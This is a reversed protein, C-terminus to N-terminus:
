KWENPFQQQAVKKANPNPAGGSSNEPKANKLEDQEVKTLRLPVPKGSTARPNLPKAQLREKRTMFSPAKPLNKAEVSDATISRTSGSSTQAFSNTSCLIALSTSFGVAVLLSASVPFSLHSKPLM